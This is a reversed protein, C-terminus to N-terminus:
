FVCLHYFFVGHHLVISFFFLIFLEFPTYSYLAFIYELANYGSM